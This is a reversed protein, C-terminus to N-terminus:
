QSGKLIRKIFRNYIGSFYKKKTFAGGRLKKTGERPGIQIAEGSGGKSLSAIRDAQNRALLYYGFGSIGNEIGDLWSRGPQWRIHNEPDAYIEEKTPINMEVVFRGRGANRLSVKTIGTKKLFLSKIYSIPKFDKPFGIFSFLNGYGHLTNSSNSVGHSPGASIEQSVPHNEFETLFDVRAENIIDEIEAQVVRAAAKRGATTALYQRTLSDKNIKVKVSM